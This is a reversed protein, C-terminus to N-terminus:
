KINNNYLDTNRKLSDVKSCLWKAHEDASANYIIKIESEHKINLKEQNIYINDLKEQIKSQAVLLKSNEKYLSDINKHYENIVELYEKNKSENNQKNEVILFWSISGIGLIILGHKIYSFYSKKEQNKLSKM